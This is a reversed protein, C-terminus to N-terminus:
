TTRVSWSSIQRTKCHPQGNGLSLKAKLCLAGGEFVINERISLHLRKKTTELFETKIYKKRQSIFL